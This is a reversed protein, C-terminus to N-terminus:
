IVKAVKLKYLKLYLLGKWPYGLAHGEPGPYKYIRVM